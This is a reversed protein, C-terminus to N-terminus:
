IKHNNTSTQIPFPLLPTEQARVSIQIDRFCLNM